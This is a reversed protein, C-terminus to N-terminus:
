WGSGLVRFSIIPRSSIFNYIIYLTGNDKVLNAQIIVQYSFICEQIYIYIYIYIYVFKM